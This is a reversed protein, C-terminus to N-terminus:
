AAKSAATIIDKHDFAVELKGNVVDKVPHWAVELAENRLHVPAAKKLDIRYVLSIIRRRPDRGIKGFIGVEKCDSAKLTAEIGTEEMLERVVGEEVEEDNRLFGGPLAWKGAFPEYQRRILLVKEEAICVADVAVKIEQSYDRYQKKLKPM